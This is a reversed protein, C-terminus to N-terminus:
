AGAPILAELQSNLVWGKQGDSSEGYVWDGRRSLMRLLAGPAASALAESQDAPASRLAVGDPSVVMALDRESFRPDALAFAAAGVGGGAVILAALVLLGWRKRSFLLLFAFLGAWAAATFLWLAPRLPIHTALFDRWGPRPAPLGLARDLEQRAARAAPMGPNLVLARRINLLAEINKAAMKQSLGLNYYLGADPGRAALATEYARAAAEYNGSQFEADAAALSEAGAPRDALCAALAALILSAFRKM